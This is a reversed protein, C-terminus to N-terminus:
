NSGSGGARRELVPGQSNMRDQMRGAAVSGGVTNSEYRCVRRPRNSGTPREMKCVIKDEYAAHATDELDPTGACGTLLMAVPILFSILRM